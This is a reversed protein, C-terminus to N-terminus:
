IPLPKGDMKLLDEWNKAAMAQYENMEDDTLHRFRRQPKLAEHVPKLEKPKYTLHLVGDEIEYLPWLGTDTMLKAIKITQSPEFGWGTPCPSQIHLLKFGKIDKAHEIKVVMDNLNGVSATGVYPVHHAAFIFSLNKGWTRKGRSNSGVPTTTTAAYKPTAGSRQGGTNMYAHNDACLWFFNENREAAASLGQMGIDATGGDGVFAVANMTTNGKIELANSIGSLLAAGGQFTTGTWYLPINRSLTIWICGPISIYVTNRGFTKMANRAIVGHGCGQCALHGPLVIEETSIYPTPIPKSM